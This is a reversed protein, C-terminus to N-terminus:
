EEGLPRKFPHDQKWEKKWRKKRKELIENAIKSINYSEASQPLPSDGLVGLVRRVARPHPSQLSDM